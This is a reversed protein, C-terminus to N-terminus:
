CRIIWFVCLICCSVCCPVSQLIGVVTTLSSLIIIIIFAMIACHEPREDPHYCRTVVISVCRLVTMGDIIWSGAFWWCFAWSELPSDLGSVRFGSENELQLHFLVLGRWCAVRIFQSFHNFFLKCFLSDTKLLGLLLSHSSYDSRRNQIM